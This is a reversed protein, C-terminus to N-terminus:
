EVKALGCHTGQAVTGCAVGVRLYWVLNLRVFSPWLEGPQSEGGARASHIGWAWPIGLGAPDTGKPTDM